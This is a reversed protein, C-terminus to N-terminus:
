SWKESAAKCQPIPLRGRGRSFCCVFVFVLCVKVLPHEPVAKEVAVLSPWADMYTTPVGDFDGDRVMKFLAFYAALDAITMEAGVIWPSSKQSASARQALLSVLAHMKGGTASVDTRLMLSIRLIDRLYLAMGKPLSELDLYSRVSM